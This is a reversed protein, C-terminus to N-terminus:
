GAQEALRGWISVQAIVLRFPSFIQLPRFRPLNQGNTIRRGRFDKGAQRIAAQAFDDVDHGVTKAPRFVGCHPADEV